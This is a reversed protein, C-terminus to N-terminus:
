TKITDPRGEGADNSSVASRFVATKEAVDGANDGSKAADTTERRTQKARRKQERKSLPKSSAGVTVSGNEMADAKRKGKLRGTSGSDINSTKAPSAPKEGPSIVDIVGRFSRRKMEAQAVVSRAERGLAEAAVDQKCGWLVALNIVDAPSRCAIARKAESSIIVGKGRTARLLQTANSILNRRSLGNDVNLIGPGYCIEFKIGRELASKVTKIQFFFPHRVSFDLSILDCELSNCAQQLAKETTPRLAFIDYTPALQSLRYNQSPDSLHLTCRRLIKLNPAYRFHLPNPIANVIEAPVKGIIAHDLAM